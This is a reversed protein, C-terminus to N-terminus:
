ASLSNETTPRVLDEIMMVMGPDDVPKPKFFLPLIVYPAIFTLAIVAAM